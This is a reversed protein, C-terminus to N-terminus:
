LTGRLGCEEYFEVIDRGRKVDGQRAKNLQARIAKNKNKLVKFGRIIWAVPLLYKRKKLWPYLSSMENLSPFFMRRLYRLRGKRVALASSNKATGFISNDLVFQGIKRSIETEEGDGFWHNALDSINHYFELLDLETLEREIYQKDMQYSNYVYVDMIFRIGAGGELFHIALHIINFILEDELSMEFCYKCGSAIHSRQWVRSCYSYYSSDSPVLQRHAEVSVYPKRNYFDNKRGERYDTFGNDLLAQKVQEHQSEQYLFDIDVMSRYFPEEYRKKTVTGKMFLHYCRRTELVSHISTVAAKQNVHIALLKACHTSIESQLESDPRLEESIKKMYLAVFMELRHKMAFSWVCPWDLPEDIMPENNLFYRIIQFLQKEVM